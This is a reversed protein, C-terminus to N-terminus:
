VATKLNTSKIFPNMTSFIRSSSEGVITLHDMARTIAVFLLRIEEDTPSSINGQRQASETKFKDYAVFVRKFERGKSAHVTTLTVAKYSDDDLEVSIESRYTDLKDLFIYAKDMDNFGALLDNLKDVARDECKLGRIQLKLWSVLQVSSMGQTEDLILQKQIGVYKSLDAENSFSAYDSVQLWQMLSATNEPDVLFRALSIIAIVRQNDILRQSVSLIAPIGDKKLLAAIEHIENRTRAIVAIDEAKVGQAVLSKVSNAIHKSTSDCLVFRPKDGQKASILDKKINRPSHELIHNALDVIQKSSRFNDVMYFSKAGPFHNPFELINELGVGRFSFIAQADDGCALLSEIGESNDRIYKIMMLQELSTDQFEDLIIHKYTYKQAVDPFQLAKLTLYLQDPYDVLNRSKLTELYRQYMDFCTKYDFEYADKGVRRGVESIPFSIEFATVSQINKEKMKIITDALGLIVGKARFMELLPSRYNYTSLLPFDELIQKIIDIQEVREILRPRTSFGLCRYNEDLIRQGFGNFTTVEFKLVEENSYGERALWFKLKEKMERVGKETFTIMLFDSPKLEHDEDLLHIVRNILATTKGSGAGALVRANGRAFKVVDLQADTFRPSGIAKEQTTLKVLPVDNSNDFSCVKEFPCSTCSECNKASKYDVKTNIQEVVQQVIDYPQVVFDHTFINQGKKSEFDSNRIDAVSTLSSEDKRSLSIIAPVVKEGPYAHQGLLQMLYLEVSGGVYNKSGVRATFDPARRSIKCVYIVGEKKLVVDFTKKLTIPESIPYGEFDNQYAISSKVESDIFDYDHVKLYNLMRRLQERVVELELEKEKSLHFYSDDISAFHKAISIPTDIRWFGEEKIANLIAQKILLQKTKPSAFRQSEFFARRHCEMKTLIQKM